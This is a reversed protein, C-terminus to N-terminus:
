GRPTSNNFIWFVSLFIVAVWFLIRLFMFSPTDVDPLFTGERIVTGPEHAAGGFIALLVRILIVVTSGLGFWDFWGM